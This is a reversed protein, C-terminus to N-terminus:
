CLKSYASHMRKLPLLYEECCFFSQPTYCKVAESPSVGTKCNLLTHLVVENDNSGTGSQSPTTTCTLPGDM